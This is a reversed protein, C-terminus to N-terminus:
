RHWRGAGFTGIVVFRRPNSGMAFSMQVDTM